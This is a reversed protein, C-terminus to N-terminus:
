RPIRFLMVHTRYAFPFGSEEVYRDYIERLSRDFAAVDKVGHAVYSSSHARGHLGEWDFRQGNELVTEKVDVVRSRIREMTAEPRELSAYESSASHLLAEYDKMAPTPVRLNWFVCGFGDPVLVRKWERLTSELEFWHFAQAAYVLDFDHDAQGTAEARGIAYAVAGAAATLGRDRARAVMGENPDVGVVEFGREAFLRASIGTGCGVDLVRARTRLAAMSAIWDVLTAPYGPRYRDYLDVVKGFREEVPITM